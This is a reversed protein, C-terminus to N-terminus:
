HKTTILQGGGLRREKAVACAVLVTDGVFLWGGLAVMGFLVASTAARIAVIPNRCHKTFQRADFSRSSGNAGLPATAACSTKRAGFPGELWQWDMVADYIVPM